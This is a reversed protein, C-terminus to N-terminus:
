SHHGPMKNEFTFGFNIASRNKYCYVNQALRSFIDENSFLILCKKYFWLSHVCECVSAM